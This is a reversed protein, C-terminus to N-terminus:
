EINKGFSQYALFAAVTTIPFAIFFHLGRYIPNDVWTNYLVLIFVDFIDLFVSILFMKVRKEMLLGKFEKM